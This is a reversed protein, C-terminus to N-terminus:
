LIDTLIRVFLLLLVFLFVPRIIKKGNKIALGSGIWNGVIGFFTAPVALAYAVKGAAIFTVLAAINSSLNVVKTNGSATRLDFGVIETFALILFSGTGPGFFGDYTGIVFGVLVSLAIVRPKSGLRTEKEGFNNKFAIFVTIAPLLVLLCYKLYRDDLALAIRAGLWSGCLAGAAASFASIYHIRGIKMFRVTSFLTGFSSSFKNSGYAYHVPMGSFLYAPLSILGGGGAISDVLGALFVM